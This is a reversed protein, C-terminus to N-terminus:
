GEMEFTMVGTGREEAYLTQRVLSQLAQITQARQVRALTRAELVIAAAARRDEESTCLPIQRQLQDAHSEAETLNGARLSDTVRQATDQLKAM